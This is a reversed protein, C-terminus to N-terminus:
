QFEAADGLNLYVGYCWADFLDDDVMDKSSPRFNLVQSLLHNRTVGKYTKVKDYAEAGWKVWGRNVYRSANIGRETKGLATLKSEIPRAPLNKSAAQQLLISGSAKDEIWAGLSGMRAGCAGALRELEAFVGPLWHELSAGEIQILDWGVIVMPWGGVYRDPNGRAFELKATDDVAWYVVATGDNTKGTKVATDITAMVADCRRPVPIAMGEVLMDDATFFSGELPRPRQEYLAAWDYESQKRTAALVELPYKEPWLARGDDGIAPFILKEWKQGGAVEANLLRGALDDEHWRTMILVVAGNKELRSYATSTYWSWVRERTSESEAEVRDKVPDDIILIDAGRGTIATGVGASVYGGGQSTHWRDKAQSDQALVTDPFLARYEDSSVLNRVERSFDWSLESGYSASIIQSSPEKGLVLAPFRRSVLESKGHRPPAFIMLRLLDRRIVAELAEAIKYHFEVASYGRKTYETFAVLSARAKARSELERRM